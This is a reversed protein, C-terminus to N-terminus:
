RLCLKPRFSNSPSDRWLRNCDNDRTSLMPKHMATTALFQADLLHNVLDRL